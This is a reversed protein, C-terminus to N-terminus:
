CACRLWCPLPPLLLLLVSELDLWGGLARLSLGRKRFPSMLPSILGDPLLSAWPPRLDGGWWFGDLLYTIQSFPVRVTKLWPLIIRHHLCLFSSCM